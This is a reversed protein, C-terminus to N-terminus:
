APRMKQADWAAVRVPEGAGDDEQVLANGAEDLGDLVGVLDEREGGRSVRVREGRYALVPLVAEVLGEPAAGHAQLLDGLADLVAQLLVEGSPVPDVFRSLSVAPPEVDKPLLGEDIAVNVGFGVVAWMLRSGEAGGETLVGAVKADSGQPGGGMVLVDNPWKLRFVSEPMLATLARQVALGGCFPLLPALAKPPERLVLSAYLGGPPSVWGRGSRGRGQTQERAAFVRGSSGKGRAAERALDM